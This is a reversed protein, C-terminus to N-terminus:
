IFKALKIIKLSFDVSITVMACFEGKTPAVSFTVTIYIMSDIYMLRIRFEVMETTLIDQKFYPYPFGTIVKTKSYHSKSLKENKPIEPPFFNILLAM